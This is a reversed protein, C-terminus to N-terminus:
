YTGHNSSALIWDELHLKSDLLSFRVNQPIRTKETQSISNHLDKPMRKEKNKEQRRHALKQKFQLYKGQDQQRIL